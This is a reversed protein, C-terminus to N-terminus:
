LCAVPQGTPTVVPNEVSAWPRAASGPTGHHPILGAPLLMAAWFRALDAPNACELNIAAIRAIPV